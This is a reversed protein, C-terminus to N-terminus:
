PRTGTLATQTPADLITSMVPLLGTPRPWRSHAVETGCPASRMTTLVKPYLVYCATIPTRNGGLGGKFMQPSTASHNPVPKLLKCLLLSIIQLTLDLSQSRHAAFIAYAWVESDPHPLAPLRVSKPLDRVDPHKIADHPFPAVQTTVCSM